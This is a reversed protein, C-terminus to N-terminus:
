PKIQRSNSRGKGVDQGTDRPKRKSHDNSHIRRYSVFRSRIDSRSSHSPETSATVVWRGFRQRSIKSSGKPHRFCYHNIRHNAFIEFPFLFLLWVGANFSKCRSRMNIAEGFIAPESLDPHYIKARNRAIVRWLLATLADYTSIWTGDQPTALQKLEASKSPQLHFLLWSCPLWDPHREPTPMSDILEEAAVYPAFFRSRDMLAEDWSPPPTGNQISYCNDAIQAVLSTTGMMDLGFHHVHITFILGERIFNLQFGVMVPSNDPHCAKPMGEIGLIEPDGLAACTFDASELDSYSPYDDEPGNLWQVVFKVTSDRKKVISYDGYENREVTGVMHRCQALTAEIGRKFTEVIVAEETRDLKFIIAYTNYNPPIVIDLASLRFWEEAFNELGLPQLSFTEKRGM